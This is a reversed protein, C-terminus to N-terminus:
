KRKRASPAAKEKKAATADGAAASATDAGADATKKKYGGRREEPVFMSCSENVCYPKKAGRGSKKFLTHGCEPCNDAVPVDWTLFNCEKMNECGYYTYGNKSTRKLIRGGCVPCKGPMEVVIPKTFTCEPYGPCALFRGFRGSKIVLQKGCVDCVEDSLEDPVRLREGELATEANEMSSSFGGYFSSLVERWDVDGSEVSDLSEEMRATFKLDVIDSFREKMLKTVVEGLATPRLYKGEKVAYERDIITSVTPAYTSPRGVGSNKMAEILTAETYRPPPQTFKQERKTNVLAAKSGEDLKPLPTEQSEEESDTGEVYVAMFGPFKVFENKARFLYGASVADITMSDYIAESMQSALFRSWILKYLRYQDNSLSSKIGDPTLQVDSPRIAEHADQSGAGSKFRTPQGPYYDAGYRSKIFRGADALADESLRLSDTRMYTILGTSGEGDVMVGEYLQQAISMTRRPTMGLKRSAEQQLSSTIFPPAPRRRRDVRKVTEIVFPEKSVADVVENVMAENELRMERKGKGHFRAVFSAASGEPKLEADLRWYEESIFARIEDERDTVLRAAVSQVRGASLGRRIKRWLLPSLKYGVIRDLIRRAQQANVLDIDIARPNEISERVVKKTIENFPARLANEDTLGLLEKLHWSIAEGERDPDTALYVRDCGKAADRLEKITKEHGKVPQYNPEFGNEIDVGLKSKPLDRLHGLSAMVKYDPGLYNGITKAKAPSEVIVLKTKAM